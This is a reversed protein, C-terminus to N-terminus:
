GVDERAPSISNELFRCRRLTKVDACIAKCSYQAAAEFQYGGNGDVEVTHQCRRCTVKPM